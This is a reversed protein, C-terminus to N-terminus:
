TSNNAREGDGRWKKKRIFEGNDNNEQKSKRFKNGSRAIIEYWDTEWLDEVFNRLRTKEGGIKYTEYSVKGVM